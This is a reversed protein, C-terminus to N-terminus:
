SHFISRAYKKLREEYVFAVSATFNIAILKQKMHSLLLRFNRLLFDKQKNPQPIILQRM